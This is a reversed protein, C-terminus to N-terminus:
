KGRQELLLIIYDLKEITTAKESKATEKKITKESKQIDIKKM